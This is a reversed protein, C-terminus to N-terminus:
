KDNRAYTGISCFSNNESWSFYKSCISQFLSQISDFHIWKAKILWKKRNYQKRQNSSYSKRILIKRLIWKIITWVEHLRHHNLCTLLPLHLQDDFKTSWKLEILCNWTYVVWMHKKCTVFVNRQVIEDIFCWCYKM